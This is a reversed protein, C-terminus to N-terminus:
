PTATNVDTGKADEEKWARWTGVKQGAQLISLATRIAAGEDRDYVEIEATVIYRPM